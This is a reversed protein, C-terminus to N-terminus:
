HHQPQRPAAHRNGELDGPLQICREVHDDHALKTHRILGLESHAGDALIAHPDQIVLHEGHGPDSLVLHGRHLSRFSGLEFPPGPTKPAMLRTPGEDATGRDHDIVADRRPRRGPGGTLDCSGM